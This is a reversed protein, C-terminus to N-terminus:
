ATASDDGFPESSAGRGREYELERTLYTRLEEDMVEVISAIRQAEFGHGCLREAMERVTVPSARGRALVRGLLLLFNTEVAAYRALLESLFPSNECFPLRLTVSGLRTMLQWQAKAKPRENLPLTDSDYSLNSSAAIEVDLIAQLTQQFFLKM